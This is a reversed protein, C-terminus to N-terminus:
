AKRRGRVLGGRSREHTAQVSDLGRENDANGYEDDVLKDHVRRERPRPDAQHRQVDQQERDRRSDHDPTTTSQQYRKPDPQVDVTMDEYHTARRGKPDFYNYKRSDSGAFKASGAAGSKVPVTPQQVASM